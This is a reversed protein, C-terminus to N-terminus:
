AFKGVVSVQSKFHPFVVFFYKVVFFFGIVFFFYLYDVLSQHFIRGGLFVEGATFIRSPAPTVANAVNIRIASDVSDPPKVEPLAAGPARGSMFAAIAM